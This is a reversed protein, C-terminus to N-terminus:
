EDNATGDQSRRESRQEGLEHLQSTVRRLALLASANVAPSGQPDGVGLGDADASGEPVLEAREDRVFSVRRWEGLREYMEWALDSLGMDEILTQMASTIEARGVDTVVPLYEVSKILTIMELAMALQGYQYWRECWADVGHSAKLFSWLTDSPRALFTM